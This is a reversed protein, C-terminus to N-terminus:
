SSQKTNEFNVINKFFLEDITTNFYDALKKAESLTFAKKGNEKFNYTTLGIELFDAMDQQKKKFLTRYVKLNTLKEM